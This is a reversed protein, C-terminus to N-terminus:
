RYPGVAGHPSTGPGRMLEAPVTMPCVESNFSEIMGSRRPEEEGVSHALRGGPHSGARFGPSPDPGGGHRHEDERDRYDCSEEIKM